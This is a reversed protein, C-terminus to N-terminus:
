LCWVSREPVVFTLSGANIRRMQRGHHKGTVEVRLNKIELMVAVKVAGAPTRSFM